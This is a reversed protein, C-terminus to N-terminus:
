ELVFFPAAIPARRRQLEFDRGDPFEFIKRQDRDIHMVIFLRPTAEEADIEIVVNRTIGAPLWQHGIPDGLLGELDTRVVAFINVDAVVLPVVIRAKGDAYEIPQDLSFIYNGTDTEFPFVYNQGQYDVPLDGAPFDFEGITGSDEHVQAYLIPTIANAVVEVLVQENVGDVLPAFGIVNAPQGLDDEFSITLWGPGDSIVREIVVTGSIVPQNLIAIDPPYLAKFEASVLAGAVQVMADDQADFLGVDGADEHLVIHLLPTAERWLTPIAVNEHVGAYVWQIGVQQGLEGDADNYAILWGDTLAVVSTLRIIGDELVNQDIAILKPTTIQKEVTFSTTVPTNNYTIPPTTEASFDGEGTEYLAIQVVEGIALPDVILELARQEGAALKTVTLLNANSFLALWGAEAMVIHDVVLVGADDVLQASAEVLPEIPEATATPVLTPRPTATVQVVLTATPVATDRPATAALVQETPPDTPLPTPQAKSCAVLSVICFLWYLTLRIKMASLNYSHIRVDDIESGM